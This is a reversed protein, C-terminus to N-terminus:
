RPSKRRSRSSTSRSGRRSRVSQLLELAEAVDADVDEEAFDLEGPVLQIGEGIAPGQSRRLPKVEAVFRV